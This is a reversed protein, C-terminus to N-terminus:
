YWCDYEYHTVLEGNNNMDELIKEVLPKLDSLTKIFDELYEDYYDRECGYNNSPFCKTPFITKVKTHDELVFNIDELLKTAITETIRLPAPGIEYNVYKCFYNHLTQEGRWQKITQCEWVQQNKTSEYFIQEGDPDNLIKKWDFKPETMSVRTRKFLYMDLGM